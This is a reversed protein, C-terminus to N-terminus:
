AKGVANQWRALLDQRVADVMRPAFRSEEQWSARLEECDSWFGVALGALM